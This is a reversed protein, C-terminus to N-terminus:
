REGLKGLRKTWYHPHRHLHMVAVVVLNGGAIRYLVGYPFRGVLRRRVQRTIVPWRRPNQEVDGIAREIADLFRQGLGSLQFEYFRAADLMEQRAEDLLIAKM